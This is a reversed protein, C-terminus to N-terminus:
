FGKYNLIRNNSNIKLNLRYQAIIQSSYIKLTKLLKFLITIPLRRLLEQVTVQQLSRDKNCLNFTRQILPAKFNLYLKIKIILNLVSVLTLILLKMKHLLLVKHFSRLQVIKLILILVAKLKCAKLEEQWLDRSVIVERNKHLCHNRSKNNSLFLEKNFQITAEKNLYWNNIVLYSKNHFYEIYVVMRKSTSILNFMKTIVLLLDLFVM